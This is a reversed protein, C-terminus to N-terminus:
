VPLELALSTECNVIRLPPRSEGNLGGLMPAPVPAQATATVGSPLLAYTLSPHEATDIAGTTLAVGLVQEGIGQDARDIPREREPNQEPQRKWEPEPKRQSARHDAAQRAHQPAASDADEEQVM